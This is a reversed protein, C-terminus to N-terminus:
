LLWPMRSWSTWVCVADEAAAPELADAREAVPWHPMVDRATVLRELVGPRGPVVPVPPCAYRKV